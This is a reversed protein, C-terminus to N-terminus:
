RVVLVKRIFRKEATQLMFIYSGDSLIGLDLREDLQGERNKYVKTQLVRGALDGLSVSVDTKSALGLRFRLEGNTPNPSLILDSGDKLFVESVENSENEENRENGIRCNTFNVTKPSNYLDSTAGCIRASITKIGNRWRLPSGRPM